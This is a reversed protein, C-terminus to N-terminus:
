LFNTKDTDPKMIRFQLPKFTKLGSSGFFSIKPVLKGEFEFITNKIDEHVM